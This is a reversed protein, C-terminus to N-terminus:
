FGPCVSIRITMQLFDNDSSENTITVFGKENGKKFHVYTGWEVEVEFGRAEYYKRVAGIIRETPIREPTKLGFDESSLARGFIALGAAYAPVNSDDFRGSNLRLERSVFAELSKEAVDKKALTVEGTHTFMDHLETVQDRIEEVLQLALDSEPNKLAVGSLNHDMLQLAARM